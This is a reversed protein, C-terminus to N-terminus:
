KEGGVTDQEEKNVICIFRKIAYILVLIACAGFMIGFVIYVITMMAPNKSSTIREIGNINYFTYILGAIALSYIVLFLSDTFRQVSQTKSSSKITPIIETEIRRFTYITMLIFCVPFMLYVTYFPIYLGDTLSSGTKEIWTFSYYALSIHITINVLAVFTEMIRKILDSSLEWFYPIDIHEKEKVCIIAGFYTTAVFLYVILEESWIYTINFVYRMIVSIVVLVAMSGMLLVTWGYLAKDVTDWLKNSFNRMKDM